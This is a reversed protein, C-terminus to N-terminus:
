YIQNVVVLLLDSRSCGFTTIVVIIDPVSIADSVHHQHQVSELNRQLYKRMKLIEPAAWTCVCECVCACVCVCVFTCVSVCVCACECTGVCMWVSVRVCACVCM